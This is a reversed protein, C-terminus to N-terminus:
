ATMEETALVLPMMENNPIDSINMTIKEKLCAVILQNVLRIEPSPNYQYVLEYIRQKKVLKPNKLATVQKQKKKLYIQAKTSRDKIDPLIDSIQWYGKYVHSRFNQYLKFNPFSPIQLFYFDEVKKVQFYGFDKEQKDLMKNIALTLGPLNNILESTKTQYIM